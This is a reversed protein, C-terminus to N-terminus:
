RGANRAKRLRKMLPPGFLSLLTLAWLLLSIPSKFFIEGGGIRYAWLFNQEVMPGLIIALMMAAIPYGYHRFIAGLIGFFVMLLIDFALFRWAFAGLFLLAGVIPVLIKTPVFAIKRTYFALPLAVVFILISAVVLSFLITYAQVQFNLFFRPGPRIGQLWLAALMVLTSASGPLGLTLVPVVAGAVCANNSSDTAVLGDPHGTGFKEPEKSWQRAQGYAVFQAITAGTGPIIGIVEGIIISRIMTTKWRLAERVGQLIEGWGKSEVVTAQAVASERMLFMMEAFGFLGLIVPILPLGDYLESIGFTARPFGTLTDTGVLSILLGFLTVALGKYLNAGTLSAVATLGFVGVLFMEAPGFQLAFAGIVPAALLALIAGALGGITSVTFSIGLAFGARGQKAMAYGEFCTATTGPTGPINILIAPISGAAQAGEYLAAMTVMATTPDLLLSFPLMIAMFNADNFGPIAGVIYGLVFGICLWMLMHVTFLNSIGQTIAQFDFM